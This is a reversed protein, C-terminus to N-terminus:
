NFVGLFDMDLSSDGVYADRKYFKPVLFSNFQSNKDYEEIALGQNVVFELNFGIKHVTDSISRHDHYQNKKPHFIPSQLRDKVLSGDSYNEFMGYAYDNEDWDVNSWKVNVFPGELARYGDKNFKWLANDLTDRAEKEKQVTYYEGDPWEDDSYRQLWNDSNEEEKKINDQRNKTAEKIVDQRWKRYLLDAKIVGLAVDLHEKYDKDKTTQMTSNADDIKQKFRARNEGKHDSYSEITVSALNLAYAILVPIGNDIDEESADEFGWDQNNIVFNSDDQFAKSKSQKGFLVLDLARFAAEVAIEPSIGQKRSRHSLKEDIDNILFNTLEPTVFNLVSGNEGNIKQNKIEEPLHRLMLYTDIRLQDIATPAEYAFVQCSVLVLTSLALIARRTAQLSVFM